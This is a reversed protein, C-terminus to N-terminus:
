AELTVNKSFGFLFPAYTENELGVICQKKQDEYCGQIWLM